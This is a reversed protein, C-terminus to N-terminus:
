IKKYKNYKILCVGAIISVIGVGIGIGFGIGTKPLEKKATTEEKSQTLDKTNTTEKETKGTDPKTEEKKGDDTKTEDKNEQEEQKEQEGQQGGQEEKEGQEEQQKEAVKVSTKIGDVKVPDGQNNYIYFDSTSIEVNSNVTASDKVKFTLLYIDTSKISEASTTYLYLGSDDSGADMFRNDNIKQSVLELIESNYNFKLEKLGTIEDDYNLIVKVTFNEGKNVTEISAQLKGITNAANVIVANVIILVIAILFCSIKKIM